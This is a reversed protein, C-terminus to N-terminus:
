LVVEGGSRNEITLRHEVPGPGPRARWISRLRLGPSPADFALVASGAARDVAAGELTWRTEVERGAMSVREPLPFAAGGGSWDHPDATSRLRTLLLRGEAFAVTVRTDGSEIEVDAPVPAALLLLFILPPAM